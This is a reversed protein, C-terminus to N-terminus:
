QQHWGSDEATVGPAGSFCTAATDVARRLNAGATPGACPLRTLGIPPSVCYPHPCLARSARWVGCVCQQPNTPLLLSAPACQHPTGAKGVTGGM